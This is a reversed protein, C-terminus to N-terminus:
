NQAVTNQTKDKSYVSAKVKNHLIKKKALSKPIKHKIEDATGPLPGEMPKINHPAQTPQDWLLQYNYAPSKSRLPYKYDVLKGSSQNRSHLM